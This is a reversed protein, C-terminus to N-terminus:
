PKKSKTNSARALHEITLETPHGGPQPWAYKTAVVSKTAPDVVCCENTTDNALKHLESMANKLGAVRFKLTLSGDPLKEFLDYERDV